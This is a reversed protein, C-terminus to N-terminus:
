IKLLIFQKKKRAKKSKEAIKVIEDIKDNRLNALNASAGVDLFTLNKKNVFFFLIYFIGKTKDYFAIPRRIYFREQFSM